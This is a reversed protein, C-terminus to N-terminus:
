VCAWPTTPALRIISTVTHYVAVRTAAAGAVAVNGSMDYLGLENPSKTAVPQTGYGPTGYQHSPINGWFWAVHIIDDGGAYKYGQSKNGGRAAYEWEAETPLRFSEGTLQNLEDIFAQCNAWSVREVPHQTNGTYYSPNSGM